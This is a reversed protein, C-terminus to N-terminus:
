EGTYVNLKMLGSILVDDSGLSYATGVGMKAWMIGKMQSARDLGNWKELDKGHKIYLDCDVEKM